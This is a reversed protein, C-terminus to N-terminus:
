ASTVGPSLSVFNSDDNPNEFVALSTCIIQGGHQALSIEIDCSRHGLQHSEMVLLVKGLTRQQLSTFENEQM